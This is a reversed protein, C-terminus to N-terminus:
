EMIMPLAEALLKHVSGKATKMNSKITDHLAEDHSGKGAAWNVVVACCTYAIELERALVAEPMGTM